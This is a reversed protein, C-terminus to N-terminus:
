SSRAGPWLQSTDSGHNPAATNDYEVKFYDGKELAPPIINEPGEAPPTAEKGSHVTYNMPTGDLQYKWTNHITLIGNAPGSGPEAHQFDVM